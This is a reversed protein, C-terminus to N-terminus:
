SVVIEGNMGFSSHLFHTCRLKYRGAAPATLHIAVTEGSNVEVGKKGIKARDTPAIRAAAFFAPAAFNHGGSSTNTLELVYPQGHVLTITSPTFAFSSLAIPVKTEGQASVAAPTAALATLAAAFTLPIRFSKLM